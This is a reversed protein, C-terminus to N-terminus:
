FPLEGPAMEVPTFNQPAAYPAAAQPQAYMQPQGYAGYMQATVQPAQPQAYAVPAQPQAGSEARTEVLTIAANDIECSTGSKGDQTTYKRIVLNGSVCVRNGKKLYKSATDATNGWCSVHYFNTIYVPRGNEDTKNGDKHLTNSALNFSAVNRGNFDRIEVDSSLRGYTTIINM